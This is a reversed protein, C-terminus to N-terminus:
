KPLIRLLLTIPSPVLRGFPARPARIFARGTYKNIIGLFETYAILARRAKSM